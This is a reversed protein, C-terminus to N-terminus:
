GASFPIRSQRTPTPRTRLRPKEGAARLDRLAYGGSLEHLTMRDIVLAAREGPLAQVQHATWIKEFLTTGTM